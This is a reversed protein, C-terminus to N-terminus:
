LYSNLGLKEASFELRLGYIFVQRRPQEDSKLWDGWDSRTPLYQDDVVIRIGRDLFIQTRVTQESNITKNLPRRILISAAGLREGTSSLSELEVRAKASSSEVKFDSGKPILAEKLKLLSVRV